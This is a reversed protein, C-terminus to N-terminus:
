LRRTKESCFDDHCWLSLHRRMADLKDKHGLSIYIKCLDECIDRNHPMVELASLLTREACDQRGIDIQVEALIRYLVHWEPFRRICNEITSIADAYNKSSLKLSAEELTQRIISNAPTFPYDPKRAIMLIHPSYFKDVPLSQGSVQSIENIFYVLWRKDDKIDPHDWDYPLIGDNVYDCFLISDTFQLVILRLENIDCINRHFTGIRNTLSKPEFVLEFLAGQFGDYRGVSIIIYGGPKLLEFHNKITNQYDEFHEVYNFSTVIDFQRDKINQFDDNIIEFDIIGNYELQAKINDSYDSSEIAVPKFKFKKALFCLNAGPYAGIEACVLGNNVPLYQDLISSFLMENVIWPTFQPTNQSGLTNIDTISIKLPLSSDGNKELSSLAVKKQIFGIWSNKLHFVETTISNSLLFQEVGTMAANIWEYKYRLFPSFDHWLVFGDERIRKYTLNSDSFVANTDHNGDIFVLGLEAIRDPIGWNLTNAYIQDINNINLTRYFSGIEEKSLLHTIFNEDTAVQDPLLNVTYTTNKPNNVALEAASRGYSTGIDLCPGSCNAALTCLVEADRRKREFLDCESQMLDIDNEIIIGNERFGFYRKIEEITDFVKIKM